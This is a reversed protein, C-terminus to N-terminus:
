KCFLITPSTKPAIWQPVVDDTLGYYNYEHQLFYEVFDQRYRVVDEREHGLSYPREKNNSFKAGFRRLDLRCSAISRVFTSDIKNTGTLQYFRDDIFNAFCTCRM